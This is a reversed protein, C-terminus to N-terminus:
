AGALIRSRSVGPGTNSFDIDAAQGPQVNDSRGYAGAGSRGQAFYTLMDHYVQVSFQGSSNTKVTYLRELTDARHINITVGGGPNPTVTGSLTVQMTHYTVFMEVGFQRSASCLVVLDRATNVSLRTQDTDNAHRCFEDRARCYVQVEGLESDTIAMDSYLDRWGGGPSETSDVKVALVVGYSGSGMIRQLFGFSVLWYSTEPIGAAVGSVQAFSVATTSMSRVNLLVTHSHAGAGDSHAASAYNLIVVGCLNTGRDPTTDTNYFDLTITNSGRTLTLGAGQSSGADLRQQLCLMGCVINAATGYSKYAQSGARVYMSSINATTQFHLRFASQLLTITGPEQILLERSFRSYTALSTGMPSPMEFPILISNTVATTNAADFEYTVVLVVTLQHFAATSASRAKFAHAVSTDPYDSTRSWIFNVFRDSALARETTGFVYASESDLAVQLTFDTATANGNENAELVFYYSRITPSAERIFGGSGTLQPVQNTGIETLAATALAGQPSELPIYVTKIQTAASDEYEYTLVLEATVNVNGLTTGTSQDTYLELVCTQSSGSGFNAQFYATFDVPGLGVALNEGTNTIDGTNTVESTAAAGLQMRVRCENVTGGTATIVDQWHMIVYASRITRTSEPLYVTIAGLSQYAKDTTPGIVAPWAYRITKLRTTM